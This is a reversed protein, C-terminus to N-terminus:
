LLIIIEKITDLEFTDPELRTRSPFFSSDHAPYLIPSIQQILYGIILYLFEFSDMTNMKIVLINYINFILKMNPPYPAWRIGGLCVLNQGLFSNEVTSYKALGRYPHVNCVSSM